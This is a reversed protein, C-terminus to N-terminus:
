QAGIAGEIKSDIEALQEASDAVVVGYLRGGFGGGASAAANVTAFANVVLGVGGARELLLGGLQDRLRAFAVPEDLKLEFHRALAVSGPGILREALTTQYTSMNNRANIETVPYVGGEPDLMADVGVVGRYGDIALRGGLRLAAATVLEVQEGTLGAPMLHGKHVGNATLARKVFDFRVTGDAAVTAQYNLDAAKAVWEEIVVAVQGEGRAAERAVMRHLRDLRRRDDVVAIGKGSVGFADKFVVRRGASVLAAAATVAAALEEPSDCAWGVPQRLGLEEAVRRSYVKSNVARCLAAPPAALPVGTKAALQEELGSVGHPLLHTHPSALATLRALTGADALADETVMRRPDQAGVAIVTPLALGLDALYALYDPDPPAKLVVYDDGGALTLALEDMRNVVMDSAPYSMRPLGVSGEAWQREVEINGVFVFRARADGVLAEKLRTTFGM